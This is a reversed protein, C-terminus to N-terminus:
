SASEICEIPEFQEKEYYATVKMMREKENAEKIEIHGIDSKEISISLYISPVVLLLMLGSVALVDFISSLQFIAFCILSGTFFILLLLLVARLTGLYCTVKLFEKKFKGFM